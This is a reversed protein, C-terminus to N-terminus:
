AKGIDSFDIDMAIQLTYDPYAKQVRETVDRHVERRDKADFSVVIDFRLTKEEKDMYFGHMQLVYPNEKVIRRVKERTEAAEPDKTNYSYVGIATLIVNHKRVVDTTVRRVLKDLEDASLTDPVEIHVSGNYSDPGYNHLVLDYAGSIEPYSNITAKIDRVMQADAREGLIRSITESLMGLGSKIIVVAIIAGLWAELSIHFLLYIGAAVLTSASIVSDLMNYLVILEYYEASDGLIEPYFSLFLLEMSQSQAEAIDLNTTQFYVPTTDRWDSHFHGFEHTVTMLDYITGDLYTYIMASQENPLAATYSGDYCNEGTAKVYLKESLLKEASEAIPPSLKPAYKELLEYADKDYSDYYEPKLEELRDSVKTQLPVLQEIIDHYMASIEEATYDRNYYDYVYESLDYQKLIDLYLEACKLNTEAASIDDSYATDYYDDLLSDSDAADARAYSIIRSLPNLTFYDENDKDYYPEFLTVYMSKKYGNTFAWSIMDCVVLYDENTQNRYTQLSENKWDAHYAMEARVKLAYAEDLATLLRDIQEQLETEKDQYTWCDTMQEIETKLSGIDYRPSSSDDAESSSSLLEGIADTYECGSLLAACLLALFLSVAHRKKM